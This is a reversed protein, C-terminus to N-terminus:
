VEEGFPPDEIGQGMVGAVRPSTDVEYVVDVGDDDKGIVEGPEVTVGGGVQGSDLLREFSDADVESESM